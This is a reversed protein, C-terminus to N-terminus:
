LYTMEAFNGLLLEFDTDMELHVRNRTQVIIEPGGSDCNYKTTHSRCRYKSHKYTCDRVESEMIKDLYRENLSFRFLHFYKSLLVSVGWKKKCNYLACAIGCYLCPSPEPLWHIPRPQSCRNSAPIRLLNLHHM